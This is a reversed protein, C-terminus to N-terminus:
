ARRLYIKTSANQREAKLVRCGGGGGGGGFFFFFFFFFDKDDFRRHYRVSINLKQLLLILSNRLHRFMILSRNTLLDHSKLSVEITLIILLLLLLGITLYIGNCLLSFNQDSIILTSFISLKFKSDVRRKTNRVSPHTLIITSIETSEDKGCLRFM